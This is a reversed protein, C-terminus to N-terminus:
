AAPETFKTSKGGPDWRNRHIALSADASRDLARGISNLTMGRKWGRWIEAKEFNSFGPRRIRAMKAEEMKRSTLALINRQGISDVVARVLLGRILCMLGTGPWLTPAIGWGRHDRRDIRVSSDPRSNPSKDDMGKDRHAQEGTILVISRDADPCPSGPARPYHCHAGDEASGISSM